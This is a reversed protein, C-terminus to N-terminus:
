RGVGYLDLDRAHEQLPKVRLEGHMRAEIAQVAATLQQVTTVIPKDMATTAAEPRVSPSADPPGAIVAVPALALDLGLPGADDGGVGGRGAFCARM